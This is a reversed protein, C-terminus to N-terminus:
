LDRAEPPEAGFHGDAVQLLWARMQDHPVGRRDVRAEAVAAELAVAEATEDDIQRALNPMAEIHCGPPAM